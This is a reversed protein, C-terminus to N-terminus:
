HHDMQLVVEFYNRVLPQHLIHIRVDADFALGFTPAAESFADRETENTSSRNLPM